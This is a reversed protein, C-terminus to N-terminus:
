IKNEEVPKEPNDIIEVPASQLPQGCYQCFVADPANPKLCAPCTKPKLVPPQEAKRRRLRPRPLRPVMGQALKKGNLLAQSYLASMQKKTVHRGNLYWLLVVHGVVYTGSYAVAVKPLIGWIPILGVLTRAVQRLVYGGGIVSGFEALYDQWRTSFGLTLGLKYVLFAQAKTLIISDTITLPIDLVPVVEAVGTSFSYAANTFCTENILMQAIATRFLPFQRGLALLRDPLLELVSPVFERQLFVPDIVSGHLVREVPWGESTAALAQNELLDVKNVIALVIKGADFWKQAAELEQRFDKATADILLIILEAAFARGVSNLDSILMATQTQMEPRHMDRRMQGALTHRGSGPQGIIALKMPNLAAERIPRIDVEKLNGWISYLSKLGAM